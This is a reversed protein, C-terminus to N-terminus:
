LLELFLDEKSIEELTMTPKAIGANIYDNVAKINKIKHPTNMKYLTTNKSKVAIIYVSKNDTYWIHYDYISTTSYRKYYTNPKIKM